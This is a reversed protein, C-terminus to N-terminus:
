SLDMKSRTLYKKNVEHNKQATDQDLAAVSNITNCISELFGM